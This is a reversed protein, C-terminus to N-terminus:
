GAITILTVHQPFRWGGPGRCASFYDSLPAVAQMEALNKRTDFVCRQLYGEVVATEDPGAVSDYRVAQSEVTAGAKDLAVLITDSAVYPAIDEAGFAALYRRHFDVYHGDAASHAIIGLGGPAIAARFRAMAATMEAAPIAYLAHTAWVIDYGGEPVAFDQLTTEHETAAAFPAPLAARAEALSFASPDLLDTAVPRIAAEALAAHRALAVPFKGSGCAVDLLSLARDGVRAQAAEFLARWDRALALHRYDDTALRYFAEMGARGEECWHANSRTLLDTM